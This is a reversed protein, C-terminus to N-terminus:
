EASVVITSGTHRTGSVHNYVVGAKGEQGHYATPRWGAEVLLADFEQLTYHRYHYKHRAQDFPLVDQNPVSAFLRKTKRRLEKLFPLPDPLHEITEFSVAACARPLSVTTVDALMFGTHANLYHANAYKIAEESIDYGLALACREGIIQTGYGAGCAVDLVLDSPRMFCSVWRYRNLHDERIPEVQRGNLEM